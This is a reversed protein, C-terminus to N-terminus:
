KQSTRYIKHVQHTVNTIFLVFSHQLLLFTSDGYLPRPGLSTPFFACSSRSMVSLPMPKWSSAARSAPTIPLPYTSSTGTGTLGLDLLGVCFLRWERLPRHRRLAQRQLEKCMKVNENGAVTICQAYHATPLAAPAGM